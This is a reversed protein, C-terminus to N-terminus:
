FTSQIISFLISKIRKSTFRGYCIKSNCEKEQRLNRFREPNRDGNVRAYDKCGFNNQENLCDRTEIMLEKEKYIGTVKGTVKDVM